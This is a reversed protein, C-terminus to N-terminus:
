VNEISLAIAAAAPWRSAPASRACVGRRAGSAAVGGARGRRAAPPSCHPLWRGHLSAAAVPLAAQRRGASRERSQLLPPRGPWRLLWCRQCTPTHRARTDHAASATTTM